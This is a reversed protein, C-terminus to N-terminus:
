YCEHSRSDNIYLTTICASVKQNTKTSIVSLTSRQIVMSTISDCSVVWSRVPRVPGLGSKYVESELLQHLKQLTHWEIERSHYLVQLSAAVYTSYIKTGESKHQVKLWHCSVALITKRCLGAHCVGNSRTKYFEILINMVIWNM